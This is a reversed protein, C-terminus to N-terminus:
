IIVMFYYLFIVFNSLYITLKTILHQLESEIFSVLIASCVYKALFIATGTCLFTMSNSEIAPFGPLCNAFLQEAPLQGSYPPSCCPVIAYLIQSIIIVVDM